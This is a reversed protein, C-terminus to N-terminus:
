LEQGCRNCYRASNPNSHRCKPCFNFTQFPISTQVSDVCAGSAEAVADAWDGLEEEKLPMSFHWDYVVRRYREGMVEGTVGKISLGGKGEGATLTEIEKPVGVALAEGNETQYIM